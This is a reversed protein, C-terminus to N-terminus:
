QKHLSGNIKKCFANYLSASMLRGKQWEDGPCINTRKNIQGNNWWFYKGNRVEKMKAKTEDSWPKGKIGKKSSPKGKKALSIKQRTENSHAIGKNWPTAGSMRKSMIEAQLKKVNILLMHNHYRYQKSTRALMAMASGVVKYLNDGTIFKTLLIHCLFHERATLVVLNDISDSGGLCKPLIHHTETYGNNVRGKANNIIDFYWKEYKNM